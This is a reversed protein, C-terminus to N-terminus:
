PTTDTTAHHGGGQMIGSSIMQKYKTLKCAIVAPEHPEQLVTGRAYAASVTRDSLGQQALHCSLPDHAQHDIPTLDTGMVLQERDGQGIAFASQREGPRPDLSCPPMVRRDRLQRQQAIDLLEQGSARLHEQYFVGPESRYGDHLLHVGPAPVIHQTKDLRATEGVGALGQGGRAIWGM